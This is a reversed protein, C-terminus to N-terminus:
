QAHFAAGTILNYVWNVWLAIFSIWLLYSSVRPQNAWRPLGGRLIAYARLPVQLLVFLFIFPGLRHLAFARRFEGHAMAVFSRTMGCGPCDMHLLVRTLCTGPIPRNPAGPVTIGGSGLDLLGSAVVMAACLIFTQWHAQPTAQASPPDVTSQTPSSAM